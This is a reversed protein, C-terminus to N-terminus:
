PFYRLLEKKGNLRSKLVLEKFGVKLYQIQQEQTLIPMSNILVTESIFLDPNPHFAIRYDKFYGQIIKREKISPIKRDSFM